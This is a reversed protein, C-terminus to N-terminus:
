FPLSLQNRDPRPSENIREVISRAIMHVARDKFDQDACLLGALRSTSTMALISALASPDIREVARHFM